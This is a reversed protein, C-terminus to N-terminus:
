ARYDGGDIVIMRVERYQDPTIGARRDYADDRVRWIGGPYKSHDSMKYAEVVQGPKTAESILMPTGLVDKIHEGTNTDILDYRM